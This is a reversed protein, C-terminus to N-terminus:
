GFDSKQDKVFGELEAIRSVPYQSLIGIIFNRSTEWSYKQPFLTQKSTSPHKWSEPRLATLGTTDAQRKLQSAAAGIVSGLGVQATM